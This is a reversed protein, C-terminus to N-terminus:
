ICFYYSCLTGSFVHSAQGIYSQILLFDFVFYCSCLTGSFVHTAEGIYSQILLFDFVFIVAVYHVLSCM